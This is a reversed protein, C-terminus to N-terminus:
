TLAPQPLTKRDGPFGSRRGAAPLALAPVLVSGQCKDPPLVSGQCKDPPPYCLYYSVSLEDAPEIALMKEGIERAAM